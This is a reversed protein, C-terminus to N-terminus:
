MLMGRARIARIRVMLFNGVGTLSPSFCMSTLPIANRDRSSRSMRSRISNPPLSNSHALMSVAAMTTMAMTRTTINTLTSCLAMSGMRAGWRIWLLVTMMAAMKMAIKPIPIIPAMINVLMSATPTNPSVVRWAPIQDRAMTAPIIIVDMEDPARTSFVPNLTQSMAPGISHKAPSNYRDPMVTVGSM